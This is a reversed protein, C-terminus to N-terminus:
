DVIDGVYHREVAPKGGMDVNLSDVVIVITLVVVTMYHGDGIDVEVMTCYVEEMSAFTMMLMCEVGVDM